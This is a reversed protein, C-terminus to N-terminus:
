RVVAHFAPHLARPSKVDAAGAFVVGPKHPYEKSAGKLALKAFPSAHERTLTGSANPPVPETALSPRTVPILGLLPLLLLLKRPM